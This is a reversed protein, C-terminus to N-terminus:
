TPTGSSCVACWGFGVFQDLPHGVPVCQVGGLGGCVPGIPIGQLHTWHTDGCWGFGVFQDHQPGVPVCQVCGLGWLSTLHTDWQFVSCVVWVGVFQDLPYGRYIPGIPIGVGGLGWLSTGNSCM